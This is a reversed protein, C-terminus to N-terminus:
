DKAKERRATWDMTRKNDGESIEVKGKITDGNQKGSFKIVRDGLTIQFAVNGNKAKGEEIEVQGASSGVTGSLKDGEQQLAASIEQGQYEGSKGIWKWTGTVTARDDARASEICFGVLTVLPLISLTLAARANM